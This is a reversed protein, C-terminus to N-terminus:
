EVNFFLFHFFKFNWFPIFNLGFAAKTIKKNRLLRLGCLFPHYILGWILLGTVFFTSDIRQARYLIILAVLPLALMVYFFPLNIKRM